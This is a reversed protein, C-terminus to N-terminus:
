DDRSSLDDIKSDAAPLKRCDSKRLIAVLKGAVVILIEEKSLVALGRLAAAL